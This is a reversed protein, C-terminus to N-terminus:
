IPLLPAPENGQPEEYFEKEQTLFYRNDDCLVRQSDKCKWVPNLQMLGSSPNAAWTNLVNLCEGRKEPDVVTGEVTADVGLEQFPNESQCANNEIDEFSLVDDNVTFYTVLKGDAPCPLDGNPGQDFNGTSQCYYHVEESGKIFNNVDGDAEGSLLRSMVTSANSSDLTAFSDGLAMELVDPTCGLALVDEAVPEIESLDATTGEYTKDSNFDVENFNVGKELRIYGYSVFGDGGGSALTEFREEYLVYLVSQNILAGDLLSITRVRAAGDPIPNAGSLSASQAEDDFPVTKDRCEVLSRVGNEDQQTSGRFGPILWPVAKLEGSGEPWGDECIGDGGLPTFRGGLPIVSDFSVLPAVCDQGTNEYGGGSGCGSDSGTPDAEFALQVQPNAAYQLSTASNIRGVFNTLDAPDQMINMSFPVEIVGSPIEATEQSETYTRFVLQPGAPNSASDYPYCLGGYCLPEEAASVWEENHTATLIAQFENWKMEGDYRFSAWKQLLANNLSGTVLDLSPNSKWTDLNKTAFEGFRYMKGTWQGQPSTQFSVQITKSGSTPHIIEVAGGWAAGPSDGALNLEIKAEDGPEIAVEYDGDATAKDVAGIGLWSLPCIDCDDACTSCGESDPDCLGDGCESSPPGELRNTVRDVGAGGKPVEHSLRRVIVTVTEKGQNSVRVTGRPFVNSLSIADPSVAFPELDPAPLIGESVDPRARCFGKSGDDLACFEDELCEEGSGTCSVRCVKSDCGSKDPCEADVSCNATCTGVVCKQFQTPCELDKKCQGQEDGGGPVHCTGMKCDAGQICGEMLGLVCKRFEGTDSDVFGKECPTYCIPDGQPLGPFEPDVCVDNFCRFDLECGGDEGCSCEPSGPECPVCVEDLCVEGDSCSGLVCSDTEQEGEAGEESGESASCVGDICSVQNGESDNECSGNKYCPCGLIGEFCDEKVCVGEVCVGEGELCTSNEACDCSEEGLVCDIADQEVVDEFGESSTSSPTADGDADACSTMTFISLLLIFLYRM